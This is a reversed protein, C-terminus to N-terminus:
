DRMDKRYAAIANALDKRESASLKGLVYALPIRLENVLPHGSGRRGELELVIRGDYPPTEKGEELDIYASDIRLEQAALNYNVSVSQEAGAKAKKKPAM